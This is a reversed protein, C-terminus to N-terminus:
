KADYWTKDASGDVNLAVLLYNKGKGDGAGATHEDSAFPHGMHFAVLELAEQASADPGELIVEDHVQPLRPLPHTLL